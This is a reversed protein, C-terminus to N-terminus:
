RLNYYDSLDVISNFLHVLGASTLIVSAAKLQSMKTAVKFKYFIFRLQNFLHFFPKLTGRLAQINSLNTFFLALNFYISTPNWIVLPVVIMKGFSSLVISKNIM